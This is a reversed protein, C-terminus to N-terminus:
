FTHNGNKLDWAFHLVSNNSGAAGLNSVTSIRGPEPSPTHTHLQDLASQHGPGGLFTSAMAVILGPVILKEWKM